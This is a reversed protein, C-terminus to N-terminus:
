GLVEAASLCIYACAFHLLGEYNKAKKEWRILIRRFRNMWSHTRECVWRRARYKPSKSKRKKEEGRSLVHPVYGCEVLTARVDAADYGKDMCM